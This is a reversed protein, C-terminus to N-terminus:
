AIRKPIGPDVRLPADSWLDSQGAFIAPSVVFIGHSIVHPMVATALTCTGCCKACAIDDATAPGSDIPQHKLSAAEDCPKAHAGTGHQAQHAQEVAAIESAVSHTSSQQAAMCHRAAVGSAAFSLALLGIVSRLFLGRM